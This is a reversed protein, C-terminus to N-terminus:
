AIRYICYNTGNVIEDYEAGDYFSLIGRGDIKADNKWSDSDFYFRFNEPLEPLICEDIYNDLYEDWQKDAEEDTLVMYNNNDINSEADPYNDKTHQMLAIIKEEDETFETNEYWEEIVDSIINDDKEAIFELLDDMNDTGHAISVYQETTM